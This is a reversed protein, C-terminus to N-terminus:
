NLKKLESQVQEPKITVYGAENVYKQGDTLIWKLFEHVLFNEPKGGSVFYLDRAPPSPYIGDNIAKMVQDMSGYFDEEPDIKGNNNLDIPIVELGQYIKRTSMEYIFGLNNFGVGEPTRRVADAVGPDGNVGLGLLDEQTKGNLYKAWMDAAGCADSRTFAQLEVTSNNGVAQGWTKMTGNIFIGVFKERTLGKKKLEALVPNHANVTPLVADKAVAIWWAGKAQEEPSVSKSYMGLDVMKSLADTMGKGAGGASVNVTVEPNLKQFEEAWKVALPYLAFAGSLTIKGKLKGDGSDSQNSPTPNCGSLGIVGSIVVFSIFIHKLIM